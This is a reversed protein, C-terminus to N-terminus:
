IESTASLITSGDPPARAANLMGLNGGAGVQNEVYFQKGLNETLKLTVLRAIVDSPGGAAFPVIIRVPRAPYNQAWSLRSWALLAVTSISVSLLQRRSYKMTRGGRSVSLLGAHASSQEPVAREAKRGGSKKIPWWKEGDAKKFAAIPM